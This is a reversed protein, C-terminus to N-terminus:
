WQPISISHPLPLPTPFHPHPNTQIHHSTYLFLLLFSQRLPLLLSYMFHCSLVYRYLQLTGYDKRLFHHLFGKFSDIHGWSSGKNLPYLYTSLPLYIYPLLGSFFAGILTGLTYLPATTIQHRLLFLMWLILPAEYLVITHQNTLALGCIFAGILAISFQKKKAFLVVLYLVLTVLFTNLPFVEATVAYQWILPSFCFMGMSVLSGGLYQANCVAEETDNTATTTTPTAGPASKSPLAMQVILGILLAAGATLACSLINLRYAVNNEVPDWISFGLVKLSYTILTFLPYGPPHATGLICGEAVLEGSDGGAISPSATLVYLIFIIFAFILIAKTNSGNSAFLSM